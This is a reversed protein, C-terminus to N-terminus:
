RKLSEAYERIESLRQLHRQHDEATHTPYTEIQVANHSMPVDNRLIVKIAEGLAPEVAYGTKGGSDPIADPGPRRDVRQGAPSLGLVQLVASTTNSLDKRDRIRVAQVEDGSTGSRVFAPLTADKLLLPVLRKRPDNWAAQLALRWTLDQAQDAQTHGNILLLIAEASRIADEIKQRWEDRGTVPPEETATVILGEAELSERLKAALRQDAQAHSLFARM